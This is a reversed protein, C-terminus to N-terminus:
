PEGLNRAIIAEAASNAQALDQEYVQTDGVPRDASKGALVPGNRDSTDV